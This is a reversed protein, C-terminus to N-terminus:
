RHGPRSRAEDLFLRRLEVSHSFVGSDDVTTTLAGHAQVGRCSMCTHEACVYCIAGRPKVREEMLAVAKATIEEQTTFRKCNLRFVRVLKSLGLIKEKG